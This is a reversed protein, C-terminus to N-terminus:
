RHQIRAPARFCRCPRAPPCGSRCLPLLPTRERWPRDAPGVGVDNIPSAALGLVAERVPSDPSPIMQRHPKRPLRRGLRRGQTQGSALAQKFSNPPSQRRHAQRHRLQSPRSRNPRPPISRTCVGPTRAWPSGSGAPPRDAIGSRRARRRVAHRQLTSKGAPKVVARRPEGRDLRGPLYGDDPIRLLRLRRGHRLARHMTDSDIM